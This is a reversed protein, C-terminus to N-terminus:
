GNNLATQSKKLFLKGYEGPTTLFSYVTREFLIVTFCWSCQRDATCGLVPHQFVIFLVSRHEMEERLSNWTNVHFDIVAMSFAVWWNTEWMPLCRNSKLQCDLRQSYFCWNLKKEKGYGKWKKKIKVTCAISPPTNPSLAASPYWPQTRLALHYQMSSQLFKQRFRAM